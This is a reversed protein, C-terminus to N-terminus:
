KKKGQDKVQKALEADKKGQEKAENNADDLPTKM